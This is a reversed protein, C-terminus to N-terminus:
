ESETLMYYQARHRGRDTLSHLAQVYVIIGVPWAMAGIAGAALGITAMVIAALGPRTPMEFALAGMISSVLWWLWLCEAIMPAVYYAPSVFWGVGIICVVIPAAFSALRAYWLKATWLELGTSGTARELWLAPLEYAVLVPALLSLTCTELICAAKILMVGPLWTADLWSKVEGDLRFGALVAILAAPWLVALLGAVYVASSFGRLTLKLDRVLQAYAPRSLRLSIFRPLSLGSYATRRLKAAFEMDHARWRSHEVRSAIYLALSYLAAGAQLPVHVAPIPQLSLSILRGALLGALLVAGVAIVVVPVNRTRSWHVWNLSAFLEASGTIAILVSMSLLLRPDALHEPATIRRAALLAVGLAAVRCFRRAFAFHLFTTRHIALSDFASEPSRVHYVESAARSLTLTVLALWALGGIIAARPTYTSVFAVNEAVRSATFYTLGLVIPGLVIWAYLHQFAWRAGDRALAAILLRLGSVTRRSQRESM